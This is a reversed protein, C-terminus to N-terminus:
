KGRVTMKLKRAAKRRKAKQNRPDQFYLSNEKEKRQIQLFMVYQSLKITYNLNKAKGTTASSTLDDQLEEICEEEEGESSKDGKAAKDQKSSAVQLESTLVTIENSDDITEAGSCVEDKRSSDATMGNESARAQEPPSENETPHVEAITTIEQIKPEETRSYCEENPSQKRQHEKDISESTELTQTSVLGQRTHEPSTRGVNGQQNDSNEHHSVITTQTASMSECYENSEQLAKVQRYLMQASPRMDSSDNLCVRAILLLHNNPDIESIHSQRREIEPVPVYVSGVNEVELPKQRDTPDPFKRTLLQICIVGFSFCDIKEDYVPKEKVAEPPMYADTGPCMTYTLHSAQPNLNSLRAMGFDTVKARLNGILLVNNGSLDRHIIDNSHLFSLALTIDRCFNVQIHHPIATPSSELFHTLNDDMLEMLLAPLGTISDQHVGLYQVINPHRIASMFECEQEFRRIPRRHERRRSIHHQAPIDFLTPHLIKAACPLDDCLANCVAGYSGIGLVQDKFLQVSKFGINKRSISHKRPQASM